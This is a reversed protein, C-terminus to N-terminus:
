GLAGMNMACVTRDKWVQYLKIDYENESILTSLIDNSPKPRGTSNTGRAHGIVASSPAHIMDRLMSVYDPNSLYETIIVLDFYELVHLAEELDISSIASRFGVVDDGCTKKACLRCGSLHQVISPHRDTEYFLPVNTLNYYSVSSTLPYSDTTDTILRRRSSADITSKNRRLAKKHSSADKKDMKTCSGGCMGTLGRVYIHDLYLGGRIISEFTNNLKKERSDNIWRNWTEDNSPQYGRRESGPGVYYFESNLRSIPDRLHTVLIVSPRILQSFTPEKICKVNFALFENAQISYRGAPHSDVFTSFFTRLTTSGAKRMRRVFILRHLHHFSDATKEKKEVEMNSVNLWKLSPNASYRGRILCCWEKMLTQKKDNNTMNVSCRSSDVVQESQISSLESLMSLDLSVCSYFLLYLIYIYIPRM